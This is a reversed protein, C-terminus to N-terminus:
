NILQNYISYLKACDIYFRYLIHSVKTDTKPSKQGKQPLRVPSIKETFPISSSLVIIALDHDNSSATWKPHIIVKPNKSDGLVSVVDFTIGGYSRYIRGLSVSVRFLVCAIHGFSTLIILKCM